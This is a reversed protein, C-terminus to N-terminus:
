GASWLPLRRHSPVSSFSSFIPLPHSLPIFVPFITCTMPGTTSTSNSSLSRGNILSASSTSLPPFRQTMSTACCMPLLVTRQIINAALSPSWLSMSTTAVPLPMVTGTPCPVNPRRNLTNPSVKSPPLVKSPSFCQHIWLSGGDKSSWLGTTSTSSVPILTM